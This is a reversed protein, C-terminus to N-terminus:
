KEGKWYFGGATGGTRIAQAITKSNIGTAEGAEKTSKYKAILKGKKNLQIITTYFFKNRNMLVKLREEANEDDKIWYFDKVTKGSGNICFDISRPHVYVSKAAVYISDHIKVLSGDMSYQRIKTPKKVEFGFENREEETLYRFRLGKATTTKGCLLDRITHPDVNNDKSANRLSPYAKIVANNEDILAIPKITRDIPESVFPEITTPVEDAPFRRWQKNHVIQNERIAKDITRKFVNICRSAIRASEYTRVFTGDLKYCAIAFIGKKYNGM